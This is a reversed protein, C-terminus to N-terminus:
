TYLALIEKAWAVKDAVRQGPPQSKSWLELNEIRNDTRDGNIHHVSEHSQLKRGLHSEMVLRHEKRYRGDPQLIDVYGQSNITRGGRWNSSGEMKPKERTLCGCSRTNGTRLSNTCVYCTTGCECLCKWMISGRRRKQIAFLVDLKGYQDGSLDRADSRTKRDARGEVRDVYTTPMM